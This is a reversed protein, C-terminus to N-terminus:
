WVFAVTYIHKAIIFKVIDLFNFNFDFSNM